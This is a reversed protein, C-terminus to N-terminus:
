NNDLGFISAKNSYTVKNKAFCILLLFTSAEQDFKVDNEWALKEEFDCNTLVLGVDSAMCLQM